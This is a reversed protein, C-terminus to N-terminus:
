DIYYKEEVMKDQVVTAFKHVTDFHYTHGDHLQRFFDLLKKDTKIADIMIKRGHPTYSNLIVELQDIAKVYLSEPSKREEYETISERVVSNIFKPSKNIVTELAQQEEIEHQQTKHQKPIDGTELEAADHWLIMNHIKNWDWKNDPDEFKKFYLALNMM